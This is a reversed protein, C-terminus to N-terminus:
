ILEFQTPATKCDIICKTKESLCRFCFVFGCGPYECRMTRCGGAHEIINYCRPCARRQPCSIGFIFIRPSNHLFALMENTDPIERSSNKMKNEFVKSEIFTTEKKDLNAYREIDEFSWISGCAAAKFNYVFPCKIETKGSELESLCFDYLAQPTIAHGCPMKARKSNTELTIMCKKSSTPINQRLRRGVFNDQYVVSIVDGDKFVKRLLRRQHTILKTRRQPHKIYAGRPLCKLIFKVRQREGLRITKRKKDPFVLTLKMMIDGTHELSTFPVAQGTSADSQSFEM